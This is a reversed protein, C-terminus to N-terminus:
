EAAEAKDYNRWLTVLAPYRKGVVARFLAMRLFSKYHVIRAREIATRWLPEYCANWETCDLYHLQAAYSEDTLIKGLAAQNIGGFRLEWPKHLAPSEFFHRNVRQWLRFFERSRDNVRVFVVGANIPLHRTNSKRTFAVDFPEAFADDLPRTIMTDADILLLEDGDPSDCVVRVWEELKATNASFSRRGLPCPGPLPITRVDIAWDPCHERASAELVRALRPWIYGNDHTPAFYNCHLRRM